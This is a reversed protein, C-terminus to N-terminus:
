RCSSPRFKMLLTGSAATQTIPATTFTPAAAVNGALAGGCVWNIAGTPVISTTLTGGAFAAPAGGAAPQAGPFIGLTSVVAPTAGTGNLAEVYTITVTGTVSDICVSETNKSLPAAATGNCNAGATIAVTSDSLFSSAYATGASANEAVATKASNALSIGDTVKARTTYDQYAPLAVAALIGIIAVVIMLEILTFGKQLSRKM